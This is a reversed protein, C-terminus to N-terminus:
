TKPLDVESPEAPGSHQSTEETDDEEEKTNDEMEDKVEMEEEQKVEVLETEQDQDHHLQLLLSLAADNM